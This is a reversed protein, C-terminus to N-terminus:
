RAIKDSYCREPLEEWFCSLIGAYENFLLQNIILNEELLTTDLPLTFEESLFSERFLNSNKSKLEDASKGDGHKIVNCLLRLEDIKDWVSLTELDINHHKFFEKIETIGHVCFTKFDLKYTHRMEDFLFKRVQQEWLHYLSSISMATFSYHVLNLESYYAVGKDMASDALDALDVYESFCNECFKEYIKETYEEAENEINNFAPFLRENFTKSFSLIQGKLINRLQPYLYLQSKM